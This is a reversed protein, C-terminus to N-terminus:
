GLHRERLERRLVKGSLTVPVEEVFSVHKPVKYNTLSEHCTEIVADSTLSDDRRVIFAHPVEGSREDPVGIVGVQVVGPITSIADEIENPSVNFGSVLIMDKKRDVIEFFGDENMVAIDGTYLWGDKITEATADARNLYGKMMTPGRFILEGPNGAPQDVGADDVIRIEMGPVPVGVLGFRNDSVPNLTLVGCCETMGYGQNIGIGTKELWKQAVGTTQAAGGSGNFSMKRCLDRTFWEENMLSAYLTNIGTFWTVSYKEMATKLNSPPRPSPVLVGHGGLRMGAVFILTFATIHYLPLAVLITDGDENMIDSTMLHAQYSNALIGRHSLEAGKSRGTTGSTYQYVVTDDPQVQASYGKIDVTGAKQKGKALAASLTVHPTKMEPIVKRVYKLVAGLLLKKLPSFYELVSLTVVTKVSTNAVVEDVKDGFLDIVFLLKAGSDQLQHELEPATYLPNVNTAVCGAKIIAMTAVAFSICNPTMVAVVDGPALKAEERLYVALHDSQVALEAYSLTTEAGTPLFTTLAKRDPYRACTENFYDVLRQAGMNALDFAKAEDTYYREWPKTM